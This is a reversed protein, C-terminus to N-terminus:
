PKLHDPSITEFGGVWFDTGLKKNHEEMFEPEVKSIYFSGKSSSAQALRPSTMENHFMLMAPATELLTDGLMSLHYTGQVLTSAPAKGWHCCLSLWCCAANWFSKEFYIVEPSSWGIGCYILGVDQPLLETDVAKPLLKALLPNEAALNVLKAFNEAQLLDLNFLSRDISLVELINTPDELRSLISSDNWLSM